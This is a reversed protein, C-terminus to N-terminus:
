GIFETLYVKRDILVIEGEVSTSKKKETSLNYLNNTQNGVEHGLIVWPKAIFTLTFFYPCM